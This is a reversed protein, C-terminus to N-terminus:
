YHKVNIQITKKAYINAISYNTLINIIHVQYHFSKYIIKM